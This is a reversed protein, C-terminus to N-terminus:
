DSDRGVRVRTRIRLRAAIESYIQLRSEDPTELTVALGYPVREKVKGVLSRCSVQVAITDGDVFVAAREGNMVEHQVTGRRVSLWDADTRRVNLETTSPLFYLHAARHKRDNRVTPSFYSLTVVFRRPVTKGALSPPLPFRYVDGEGDALEGWGFVTARNSACGRMRDGDLVGYGYFRSLAERLKEKPVDTLADKIEQAAEPYRVCHVLAAKTLVAWYEEPVSIGNFNARSLFELFLGGHHSALAAAGSTGHFYRTGDLAGPSATPSATLLGPAISSSIFNLVTSEAQGGSPLQRFLTRGGPALLDPKISRRYGMGIASVPSPLSETGRLAGPLPDIRTGVRFNEGSADDHSAGVCLGNVAESPSLIRRREANQVILQLTQQRIKEPALTEFTDPTHPFVLSNPHNGASIVFLVQYKYALWDLLRAWPSMTTALQQSADGLSLNVLRVRGNRVFEEDSLLRVLSRHVLDIALQDGPIREATFNWSQEPKLVPRVYIPRSLSETEDAGIDGHLVLSSVATGHQRDSAPIESEWGDPDDIIVGDRLTVHQALPLGDLVAVLPSAAQPQASPLTVSTEEEALVQLPVASQAEPRFFAIEQARILAVDNFQEDLISQISQIPLHALLGHYGIDSIMGGNLFEGGTSAILARVRTEADRQRRPDNRYWLEIEVPISEQGAEVRAAFDELVGTGRLRDKASWRRLDSLRQFVNRWPTLGRPFKQSDSKYNNWLKLVDKLGDQNSALMFLTGDFHASPADLDVFNGEGDIDAKDVEALYEFGKIKSVAKYFGDVDGIIELVLVLEPDVGSLESAISANQKDLMEHLARWAAGLRTKQAAAGPFKVNSQAGGNLKQRAAKTHEPFALLPYTSSVPTSM